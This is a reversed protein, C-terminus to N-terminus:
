EKYYVSFDEITYKKPEFKAIFFRQFAVAGGEGLEEVLSTVAIAFDVGVDLNKGLHLHGRMKQVFAFDFSCTKHRNADTDHAVAVEPAAHFAGHALIGVRIVFADILFRSNSDGRM